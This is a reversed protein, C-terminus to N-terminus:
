FIYRLHKRNQNLLLSKLLFKLSQQTPHTSTPPSKTAAVSFRERGIQSHGVPPARSGVRVCTPCINDGRSFKAFRSYM